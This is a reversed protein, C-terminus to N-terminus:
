PVIGAGVPVGARELVFRGLGPLRAFSEMVLPWETRMTVTGLEMAALQPADPLASLSDTDLQEAIAEIQVPVAQTACRLLVTEGCALPTEALWFVRGSAREAVLPPEGESALVEGRAPTAGELLLGVSEGPVVPAHSAPFRRVELVRAKAGGPYVVLADGEAISGSLLRGVVIAEGDFRYVDQVPFRAAAFAAAVPEVDALAEMVSPGDYWPMTCSHSVVNEGSQAVAPIVALPKIGLAGLQAVADQALSRFAGEALDLKDMKNIAVVVERIGLLSLLLAHRRTQVQVGEDAALVLVAADARTAGTLMNQILHQHGPVDIFVLRFEPLELFTQTTDITMERDREEQLQDMAHAWNGALVADTAGAVASLEHRIRGIMTSKGHDVHGVFAIALVPKEEAAIAAGDTV